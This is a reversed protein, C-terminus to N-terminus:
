ADIDYGELDAFKDTLGISFSGCLGVAWWLLREEILNSWETLPSTKYNFQDNTLNSLIENTYM